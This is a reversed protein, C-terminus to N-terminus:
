SDCFRQACKGNESLTRADGLLCLPRPLPRRRGRGWLHQRTGRGTRVTTRLFEITASRSDASNAVETQREFEEPSRYGLASHLRQRNYYQEIFEEINVRMHELDEYRNAYIEETELNEHLERLQCQRLSKGTSEHQPDDPTPTARGRIRHVRVPLGRDSHHVLGPGPKREALARNLAALALRVALTKDLEWGVVKRSFADLVVALYVFERKLRIYTIDAVWLQNIGKLKMRGVLNLHIELPDHRFVVEQSHSSSCKNHSRIATV